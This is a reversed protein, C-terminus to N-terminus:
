ASIKAAVTHEFVRDALDQQFQDFDGVSQTTIRNGNGTTTPVLPNKPLHTFHWTVAVVILVVIAAILGVVKKGTLTM